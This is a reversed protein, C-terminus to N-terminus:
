RRASQISQRDVTSRGNGAPLRHKQIVGSGPSRVIVDSEVVEVFRPIAFRALSRECYAFFEAADLETGEDLVVFVKIEDEGGLEDRVAVAACDTIGEARKITLELEYASLNEGRRRLSDTLRGKFFLFGDEDILGTDGSHFWLDKMSESTADARRWYGRTVVNPVRPRFVIEGVGGPPLAYGDPDHIEVDFYPSPRGASFQKRSSKTEFATGDAETQGYLSLLPVGLTDEWFAYADEPIPAAVVRNLLLRDRNAPVGRSAVAALVSGVAVFWTARFAEVDEWFRSISFRPLFSLTGGSQLHAVIIVHADVHFFPLVWYCCDEPGLDAMEIFTGSALNSFYGHSLMVGKSPGTTGSTYLVTCLDGPRPQAPEFRAYEEATLAPPLSELDDTDEAPWGAAGLWEAFEAQAAVRRPESDALVHELMPGRLEANIPVEVLGAMYAGFQWAIQAASNRSMIAMRDGHELGASTLAQACSAAQRTFADLTWEGERWRLFPRDPAAAHAVLLDALPGRGQGPVVRHAPESM